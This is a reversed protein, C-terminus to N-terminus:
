SGGYLALVLVVGLLLVVAVILLQGKAVSKKTVPPRNAVHPAHAPTGSSKWPNLRALMRDIEETGPGGRLQRKVDFLLEMALDPRYSSLQAVRRRIADFTDMVHKVAGRNAAITELTQQDTTMRRATDLWKQAQPGASPGDRNFLDTACNNLVLAARDRLRATRRHHRHPVLVKLRRLAPMVQQYVVAAGREPGDARLADNAETIAADADEYHSTAATELLHDISEPPLGRWARAQEVLWSQQESPETVLDLLPQFLTHPLQERLGDVVSGDLQREGLAAIRAHVHDWFGDHRSVTTWLRDAESWLREARDLDTPTLPEGSTVLDLVASHALVAKDHHDHLTAPCGCADTDAGWLWFLEDVLRRHPNELLRDFAARVEDVGVALGLDVDAGAELAPLVQRQRRRVVKRDVVTLMGTVRFANRRYLQRGAVDRLAAVTLETAAHSRDPTAM